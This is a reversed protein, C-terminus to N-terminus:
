KKCREVKRNKNFYKSANKVKTEVSDYSFENLEKLVKENDIEYEALLFTLLKTIVEIEPILFNASVTKVFKHMEPTELYHLMYESPRPEIVIM